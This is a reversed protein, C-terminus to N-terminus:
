NFNEVNYAPDPAQAAVTPIAVLVEIELDDLNSGSIFLHYGKILLYM